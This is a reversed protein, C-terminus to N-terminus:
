PLRISHTVLNNWPSNIYHLSGIQLFPKVATYLSLSATLKYLMEAATGTLTCFSTIHEFKLLHM